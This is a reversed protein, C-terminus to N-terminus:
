VDKLQRGTSFATEIRLLMNRPFFDTALLSNHLINASWALFSSAVNNAFM